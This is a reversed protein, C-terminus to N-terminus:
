DVKYLRTMFDVQENENQAKIADAVRKVQAALLLTARVQAQLLEANVQEATESFLGIFRDQAGVENEIDNWTHLASVIDANLVGTQVRVYDARKEAKAKHKADWEAEVEKRYSLLEEEHDEFGETNEIDWCPDKLWNAKLDNIQNQTAM